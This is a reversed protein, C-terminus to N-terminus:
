EIISGLSRSDSTIRRPSVLGDLSPPRAARVTCLEPVDLRRCLDASPTLSDRVSLAAAEFRSGPRWGDLSIWAYLCFDRVPRARSPRRGYPARTRGRVGARDIGPGPRCGAADTAGSVFVDAACRLNARLWYRLAESLLDAKNIHRTYPASEIRARSAIRRVFTGGPPAFNVPRLARFRDKDRRTCPGFRKTDDPIAAVSLSPPRVAPERTVPRGVSRHGTPPRWDLVKRRWHDDHRYRRHRMEM